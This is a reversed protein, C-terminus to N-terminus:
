ELALDLLWNLAERYLDRMHRVKESHLDRMMKTKRAEPEAVGRLHNTRESALGQKLHLFSRFRRTGPYQYLTSYQSWHESAVLSHRSFAGVDTKCEQPHPTSNKPRSEQRTTRSGDELASGMGSTSGAVRNQEEQHDEEKETGVESAQVGQMQDEGNQEAKVPGEEADVDQESLPARDDLTDADGNKIGRREAEYLKRKGHASGLVSEDRRFGLEPHDEIEFEFRHLLHSSRLGGPPSEEESPDKYVLGRRYNGGYDSCHSYDWNQFLYLIRNSPLWIPMGM